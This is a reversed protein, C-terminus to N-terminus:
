GHKCGKLKTLASPRIAGSQWGVPRLCGMDGAIMALDNPLSNGRVRICFCNLGLKRHCPGSPSLVKLPLKIGMVFWCAKGL